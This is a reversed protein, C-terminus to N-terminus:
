SVACPANLASPLTGLRATAAKAAALPTAWSTSRSGESTGSRTERRRLSRISARRPWSSLFRGYRLYQVNALGAQKRRARTWKSINLGYQAIIKRDLDVPDKHDPVVGSVYFWYGHAVYAVALQQIFGAVSAAVCRYTM